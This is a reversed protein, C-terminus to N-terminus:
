CWTELWCLFGQLAQSSFFGMTASDWMSPCFCGWILGTNWRSSM